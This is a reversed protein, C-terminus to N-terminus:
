HTKGFCHSATLIFHESLIAGGCYEGNSSNLYVQWPWEGEKSKRGGIIRKSAVMSTNIKMRKEKKQKMKMLQLKRSQKQKNRSMLSAKISAVMKSVGVPIKTGCELGALLLLNYLITM